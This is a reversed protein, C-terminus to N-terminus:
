DRGWQAHFSSFVGLGGDGKILFASKQSKRVIIVDGRVWRAWGLCGSVCCPNGTCATGTSYRQTPSDPRNAAIPRPPVLQLHGRGSVPRPCGLTKASLARSTHPPDWESPPPHESTPTVSASATRCNCFSPRIGCPVLFSPLPCFAGFLGDLTMLKAEAARVSDSGVAM